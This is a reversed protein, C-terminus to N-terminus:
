LMNELREYSAKVREFLNEPLDLMEVEIGSSTHRNRAGWYVGGMFTSSYHWSGSITSIISLSGSSFAPAIYPKFGLARVELNAKVARETLYRSIDENYNKISDAIVLDQGHPGFARGEDLYHKANTSQQSYFVARAHMVGLGYGRIQEPALGQYDVNGHIDTNSSIFVSKCLLDVPDSVVAFIGKYGINRALKAYNNVIQSNAEFQVLRVDKAEDGIPPVRASICFVFMDCDFLKDEEIIYVPPFNKDDASLIQNAEYEWRKLNSPNRDYIGISSINDGGLLRLGILLNSGVDGLGLINIKWKRPFLKPFNNQWNTYGTNISVVERSQIKNNLWLPLDYDEIKPKRLLNLGEKELFLLSPDSICFSRRSKGKPLNQLFYIQGDAKAAEVESIKNFNEYSDKSFLTKNDFSYYNM